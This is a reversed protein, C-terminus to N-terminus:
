QMMCARGEPAAASAQVLPLGSASPKRQCLRQRQALRQALLRPQRGPTAWGAPLGAPRVQVRPLLAGARGPCRVVRWGSGRQVQARLAVNEQQAHRIGHGDALGLCCLRVLDRYREFALLEELEQEKESRAPQARLARRACLPPLPPTLLM